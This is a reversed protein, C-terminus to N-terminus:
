ISLTPQSQPIGLAEKIQATSINLEKAILDLVQDMLASIMPSEDKYWKSIWAADTSTLIDNLLRSTRGTHASNCLASYKLDKFTPLQSIDARAKDSCLYKTLHEKINERTIETRAIQYYLPEIQLLQPNNTVLEIVKKINAIEVSTFSVEPRVTKLYNFIQEVNVEDGESKALFYLTLAVFTASRSRGAKCHVYVTENNNIRHLAIRIAKAIEMCPFDDAHGDKVMIQHQHVDLAQWGSATQISPTLIGYGIGALEFDEVCSIVQRLGPITKKLQLSEYVTPIKGLYLKGTIKTWPKWNNKMMIRYHTMFLGGGFNHRRNLDPSLLTYYKQIEKSRVPARDKTLWKIVTHYKDDELISLNIPITKLRPEENTVQEVAEILAQICDCVHFGRKRSGLLPLHIMDISELKLATQLMGVIEAKLSMINHASSKQPLIIQDQRLSCGNTLYTDAVAKTSAFAVSKSSLGQVQGLRVQLKVGNIDHINFNYYFALQTNFTKAFISCMQTDLDMFYVTKGKLLQHHRRLVESFIKAVSEPNNEFAKCGFANLIIADANLTVAQSVVNEISQKIIASPDQNNRRVDDITCYRDTLGESKRCDPAAVEVIYCSGSLAEDLDIDFEGKETFLDETTKVGSLSILQCKKRYAGNHPIELVTNQMDNYIANAYNFFEERAESSDFYHPKILCQKIFHLILKLYRAQFAPVDVQLDSEQHRLSTRGEDLAKKLVNNFDALIKWYLDTNRTLAEQFTGREYAGAGPRQANAADMIVVTKGNAALKRSFEISDGDRIEMRPADTSLLIEAKPAVAHSDEILPGLLYNQKVQDSGELIAILRDISKILRDKTLVSEPDIELALIRNFLEHNKYLYDVLFCTQVAWFQKAAATEKSDLNKLSVIVDVLLKHRLQKNQQIQSITRPDTLQYYNYLTRPAAAMKKFM